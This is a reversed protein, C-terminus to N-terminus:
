PEVKKDLNIIRIKESVPKPDRFASSRDQGKCKISTETLQDFSLNSDFENKLDSMSRNVPRVLVILLNLSKSSRVSCGRIAHYNLGASNKM